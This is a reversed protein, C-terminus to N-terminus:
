IEANPGLLDDRTNTRRWLEAGDAKKICVITSPEELVVVRDGVIIPSANSKAKLPTRWAVNQDESWFVPTNTAPFHGTFDNRFALVDGTGAAASSETAFDANAFMSGSLVLVALHIRLRVRM